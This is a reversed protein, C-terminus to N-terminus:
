TPTQSYHNPGEDGRRCNDTRSCSWASEPPWKASKCSYAKQRRDVKPSGQLSKTDCLETTTWPRSSIGDRHGSTTLMYGLINPKRDCQCASTESQAVVCSTASAM